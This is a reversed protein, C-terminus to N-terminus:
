GVYTYKGNTIRFFYWNVGVADGEAHLSAQWRADFPHENAAGAAPGGRPEGQRGRLRASRTWRFGAPSTRRRGSPGGRRAPHSSRTGPSSRAIGPHQPHRARVVLRLRAEAQVPETLVRRREGDRGSEGARAAPERAHQRRIRDTDRLRRGPHQQLREHRDLLLRDRHQLGVRVVRVGRARFLPSMQRALATSYDDQSDIVMVNRAGALPVFNVISGGSGHRQSHRPLVDPVPREDPRDTDRLGLDVHALQAPLPDRVLHGVPEDLRRRCRAPEHGLVFKQAM